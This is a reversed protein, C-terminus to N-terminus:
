KGFVIDNPLENNDLMQYPFYQKLITGIALVSDAIGNAYEKNIFYKKLQLTNEKWFDIGTNDYIACDAFVALQRDKLAIYLLVANRDKTKYMELDDFIETARDIANVYSCKSEIFVRIEGSTELEAKQIAKVIIEKEEVSFYNTAKRQLFKFM